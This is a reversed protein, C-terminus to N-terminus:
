EHVGGEYGPRVRKATKGAVYNNRKLQYPTMLGNCHPCRPSPERNRSKGINNTRMIRGDKCEFAQAHAWYDIQRVQFAEWPGQGFFWDPRRMWVRITSVERNIIRALAEVDPADPVNDRLGLKPHKVEHADPVPKKSTKM